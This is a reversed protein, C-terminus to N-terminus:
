VPLEIWFRSGGDLRPEFGISGHHARLAAAATALGLGTGSGSANPGRHFPEFLRGAFEAPVGPGRDLVDITLLSNAAHPGTGAVADLRAVIAVEGDEPGYTIANVLLNTLAQEVRM